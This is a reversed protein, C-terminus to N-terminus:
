TKSEAADESVDIAGDPCLRECMRCLICNEAGEIGPMSTGYNNRNKSKVFIKKPCATLCINCGKCCAKDVTIKAM